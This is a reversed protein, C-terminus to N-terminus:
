EGLRQVATVRYYEEDDIGAPTVTLLAVALATPVRM